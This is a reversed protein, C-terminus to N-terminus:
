SRSFFSPLFITFRTGRRTGDGLRKAAVHGRHNEVFQKVVWLGLGTGVNTKTTFFPEFLRPLDEERIGTGNDEVAVQVGRHGLHEEDSVSLTLVGGTEMADIANSVLNSFVQHIEGKMGVIPSASQYDKQVSINRSRLRSQYVSIVDDLLEPVSVTIPTSTDRYFGLTQRAIHAVRNMEKEATELYKQVKPDSNPARRALYLLNVVAELPNNIEHAITAALRGTAALKESLLLAQAQKKNETVDRFFVSLGESSPYVNLALWISLPSYFEEFRMVRDQSLAERFAGEIRTGLTDPFAEWYNRGVLEEAPKRAIQSGHRNVYRITWDTSVFLFGESISELIQRYQQEASEAKLRLEHEHSMLERRLRHMSVHSSVRALLERATFPKVLYDDAGAEMGESRAEEGARASLMVVPISTTKPDDRLAKLLGFGDLGPMMVDTLVLDPSIRKASELALEGNEVATVQFKSRLLRSVYERMDRNDDALVIQASVKEQDPEEPFLATLDENGSDKIFVGSKDANPLWRLAEHLYPAAGVATSPMSRSAMVRDSPLHHSGLPIRVRFTSGEGEKSEAHVTGGHLRVLEDVLALGIGTGEHTRGRAGQVRRFREFVHTIEQESIGTGTDRVSLEAHGDEARLRVEIEGQFTFKFANSLLNLVIKEWMERDIYAPEPMPFCDIVLQIGARETASRFVSALDATFASLDTPEYVAQIRGAEIRSFDLLTNVLKLLRLANRQLTEMREKQKAPLPSEVDVLADEVPGLMLTLPTRFEHSVNSFFATKARDLEALAEARKKQLEYAEADAVGKGIQGALLNFFTRYNDDLRKRRSVAAVLVGLPRTQSGQVLPVILIECPGEEWAGGPFAFGLEDAKSLELAQGSEIVQGLLRSIESQGQTYDIQAPTFPHESTIGAYAAAEVVTGEDPLRYMAAFPVDFPNDLLVEAARTWAEQESKADTGRAALDRLTRLRREGIVRETTQTVATFVGAVQGSEGRIPSYSFTHYTEETYGHRELFLLLDDSWTAEGTTLVRKLMPGIVNWIESWVESGPKGLAWPHKAALTQRYADNYLMILDPGWWIFLEFRSNLVLSLATKLSQPWNAVPGLKTESWDMSRMIAAM